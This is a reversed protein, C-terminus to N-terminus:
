GRTTSLQESFHGLIHSQCGELALGIAVVDDDRIQIILQSTATAFMEPQSYEGTVFDLNFFNQFSKLGSDIAFPFLSLISTRHVELTFSIGEPALIRLKEQINLM